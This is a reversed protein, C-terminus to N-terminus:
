KEPNRADFFYSQGEEDLIRWCPIMQVTMHQANNQLNDVMYGAELERIHGPGSTKKPLQLLAQATSIIQHKGRDGEVMELWEGELYTIQGNCYEVTLNTGFIEFGDYEQVYYLAFGNATQKHNKLKLQEERFPLETLAAKVSRSVATPLTATDGKETPNRYFITHQSFSLEQEGKQYVTGDFTWGDQELEQRFASTDNAINRADMSRMSPIPSRVTAESIEWGNRKLIETVDLATQRSVRSTAQQRVFLNTLLFLNVCLFLVM